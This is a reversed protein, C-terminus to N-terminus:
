RPIIKIKEYDNIMEINNNDYLLRPNDIIIYEKEKELQVIKYKSNDIKDKVDDAVGICKIRIENKILNYGVVPNSIGGRLPEKEQVHFFQVEVNKKFVLAKHSVDTIILNYLGNNTEM